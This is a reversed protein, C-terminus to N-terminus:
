FLDGVPPIMLVFSLVVLVVGLTLVAHPVTRRKWALDLVVWSLLWVGVGVTTVGSLAGTPTYFVMMKKFAPFHDGLIALAALALSGLGASLLAAAAAGNTRLTMRTQIPQEVSM